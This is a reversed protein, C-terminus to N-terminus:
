RDEPLGPGHLTVVRWGLDPLGSADAVRASAVNAPDHLYTPVAGDALVLRAAQSVLRRAIGKGRASPQTGVALEHGYRDHQKRGVGGAYAGHEDWAVLVDGNFPRLWAPVRPDDAPVWEGADPLPAPRVTWRFVGIGVTTDPRGVAAPLADVVAELSSAVGAVAEVWAPPVSVVAGTPTAVGVVPRVAGDWGPQDRLRSGVILVERDPPPWAGLWLRLHADLRREPQV